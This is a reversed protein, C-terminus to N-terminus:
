GNKAADVADSLSNVQNSVKLLVSVVGYDEKDVDEPTVYLPNDNEDVISEAIQGPAGNDGKVADMMEGWSLRRVRVTGLEKTEVEVVKASSKRAAIRERISLPKKAEDSM